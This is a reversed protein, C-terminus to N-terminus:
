HEREAILPPPSPPARPTIPRTWTTTKSVHNIYFVHGTKSKRPSWGAP